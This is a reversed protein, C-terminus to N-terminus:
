NLEEKDTAADVEPKEAPESAAVEAILARAAAVGDAAPRRTGSILIAAILAVFQIDRDM